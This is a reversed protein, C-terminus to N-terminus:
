MLLMVQRKSGFLQYKGFLAAERGKGAAIEGAVRWIQMGEGRWRHLIPRNM